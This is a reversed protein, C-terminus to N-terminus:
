KDKLTFREAQKKTLEGAEAADRFLTRRDKPLADTVKTLPFTALDILEEDSLGFTKALEYFQKSDVVATAAGMSSLKLNPFVMGAKAAEVAARKERDAWAEVIKAIMYRQEIAAPDASTPDFARAVVPNDKVMPNAAEAVEVVLAGLAPCKDEYQCFRCDTSPKLCGPQPTGNSWQARVASAQTIVADIEAELTPLDNRSFTHQMVESVEDDHFPVLFAFTIRDLEAFKQFAGAVYARAQWNKATPDIVSVGTKYDIMVGHDSGMWYSFRDCTGFTKQGSPLAIEVRIEKLDIRHEVPFASLFETEMRVIDDYISVEDENHLASPDGAELAEHIRTGKEAAASTTDPQQFGPCKAVYKLGSPGFEAHDRNSHDIETPSM